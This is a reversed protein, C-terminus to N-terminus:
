QNRTKFFNKRLIFFYGAVAPFILNLLWLSTSAALIAGTNDTYYRLFYLSINGRTFLEAVTFSPLATQALFIVSVATWGEGIQLHVGFLRLLILYQASFVSYRLLSLLFIRTFDAPSYFSLVEIYRVLRRMIRRNRLLDVVLYLYYYALTLLALLIVSLFVIITFSPGGLLDQQRLFVMLAIIGAYLTALITAYSGVLSSVVGSIRFGAPLYLIRGGYEGVRNPTFLGLTVGTWVAQFARRFRIHVLKNILLNWKFAEVGWNAFMLLICVLVLNWGNEAVGSRFERVVDDLRRQSILQEYLAWCLLALIVVKIVVSWINNAPRKV